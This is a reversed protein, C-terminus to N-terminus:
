ELHGNQAALMLPTKGDCDTHQLQEVVHKNCLLVQCTYTHISLLLYTVSCVNIISLAGSAAAIHLLSKGSEPDNETSLNVDIQIM